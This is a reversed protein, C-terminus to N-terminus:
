SATESSELCLLREIFHPLNPQEISESLLASYEKSHHQNLVPPYDWFCRLKLYMEEPSKLTIISALKQIQEAHIGTNRQRLTYELWPVPISRLIYSIFERTFKPQWRTAHWVSNLLVHRNYGCFVEDGGDGTLSVTVHQRACRAVLFAPIQSSDAFPEDYLVPLKQIVELAQKPEIYIETHETGLHSAIEKAYKAENLADDRSGITFTKVPRHSQAQMLAVVCSSDIGGSFFAGTPVDAFMQRAVATQLIRSLESVAEQDDGNFQDSVGKEAASCLSWYQQPEPIVSPIINDLDLTLFTGAPLKFIGKYISYPSPVFNYKFYLALSNLDIKGQWQPHATISKLESGFLFVSGNWGYYLPKEGIRDRGLYLLHDKCDWLAFAFMGVFLKLSTEVGWHSFASLVVETDSTGTFSHGLSVLLVRIEQYNYVEGNYVIVYRGDSSIMPQHGTPSLDIVSLRRHGLALGVKPEVWVGSDDPGRHMLKSAMTSITSVSEELSCQMRQDVFGVVGCM